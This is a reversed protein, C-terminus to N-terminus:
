FEIVIPSKPFKPSSTEKREFLNPLTDPEYYIFRTYDKPEKKREEEDREAFEDIRVHASEITKHTSLNLCNYEKSRYSYGLFIGEDGKVNFKGKRSEKLIYCKRGFVKLYGVNPKHCVMTWLSNPKLIEEVSVLKFYSNYHQYRGELIQYCCEKWDDTDKHM